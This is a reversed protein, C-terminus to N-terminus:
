EAEVLEVAIMSGGTGQSGTEVMRSEGVGLPADGEAIADISRGDMRIRLSRVARTGVNTITIRSSGDGSPAFAINVGDERHGEWIVPLEAGREEVAMVAPQPIDPQEVRPHPRAAIIKLGIAVMAILPLAVLLWRVSSRRRRPSAPSPEAAKPRRPEDLENLLLSSADHAPDIAIVRSALESARKRDSQSGTVRWREKHATALPHLIEISMPDLAMAERLETVADDWRRHQLHRLGRDRHSKAALDAAAIDDESMGLERAVEKMDALDLGRDGEGRLATLREIYKRLMEQQYDEAM